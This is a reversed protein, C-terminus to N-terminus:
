KNRRYDFTEDPVNLVHGNIDITNKDICKIAAASQHYNWYINKPKRNEKNFILEGRVSDDVTAGPSCLFAKFTWTGDPSRVESILDGHPLRNMDFFAWYVGYGILGLLLLPSIIFLMIIQKKKM